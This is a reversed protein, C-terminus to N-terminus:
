QAAVDGKDEYSVTRLDSNMTRVFAHASKNM